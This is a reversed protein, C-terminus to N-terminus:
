AAGATWRAGYVPLCSLVTRRHLVGTSETARIAARWHAGPPPAGKTMSQANRNKSHEVDATRDLKDGSLAAAWSLVFHDAPVEEDIAFAAPVANRNGATFSGIVSMKSAMRAASRSAAVRMTSGSGATARRRLSLPRVGTMSAVYMARPSI